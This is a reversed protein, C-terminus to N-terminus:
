YLAPSNGKGYCGMVYPHFTTTAYMYHGDVEVGNCIDVECPDYLQGNNRYPSLIPRGDKAIGITTRFPTDLWAEKILDTINGTQPLDLVEYEQPNVLCTGPVKYHYVKNLNASSLCWDVNKKLLTADRVYYGYPAPYFPDVSDESVATTFVAGSTSVGWVEDLLDGNNVYGSIEPINSDAAANVDCLKKNLLRTTNLEIASENVPPLWEVTFDVLKVQIFMQQELQYCHNPVTNTQVRLKTKQVGGVGGDTELFCMVCLQRKLVCAGDINVGSCKGEEINYCIHDALPM